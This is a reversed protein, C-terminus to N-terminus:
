DKRYERGHNSVGYVTTDKPTNHVEDKGRNCPYFPKNAM